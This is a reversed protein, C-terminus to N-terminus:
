AEAHTARWIGAVMLAERKTRYEKSGASTGNCIAFTVLWKHPGLREVKNNIAWDTGLIKRVGVPYYIANM